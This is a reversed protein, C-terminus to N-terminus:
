SSGDHKKIMPSTLLEVQLKGPAGEQEVPEGGPEQGQHTQILALANIRHDTLLTRASSALTLHFLPRCEPRGRKKTTGTARDLLRKWARADGGPM